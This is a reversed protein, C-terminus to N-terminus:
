RELVLYDGSEDLAKLQEAFRKSIKRVRALTQRTEPTVRNYEAAEDRRYDEIVDEVEHRAEPPLGCSSSILKWEQETIRPMKPATEAIPRGGPAGLPTLPSVNAFSSPSANNTAVQM